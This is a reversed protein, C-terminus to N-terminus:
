EVDCPTDSTSVQSNVSRGQVFPLVNHDLTGILDAWGRGQILKKSFTAAEDTPVFVGLTLLGQFWVAEYGLMSEEADRAQLWPHHWPAGRMHM